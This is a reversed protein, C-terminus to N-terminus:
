NLVDLIASKIFIGSDSVIHGVKHNIQELISEMKRAVEAMTKTKLSRVYLKKTFIDIVILLFRVGDNEITYNCMDALDISM